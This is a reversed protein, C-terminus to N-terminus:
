GFTGIRLILGTADSRLKSGAGMKEGRWRMGVELKGRSNNPFLLFFSVKTAFCVCIAYSMMAVGLKRTLSDSGRWSGRFVWM